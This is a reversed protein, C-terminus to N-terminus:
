ELSLSTIVKENNFTNTTSNYIEKYTYEIRVRKNILMAPNNEVKEAGQFNELWLLKEIKNEENKINIYTYEKTFVEKVYGVVINNAVVSATEETTEEIKSDIVPKMIEMYEPCNAALKLGIKYGLQQGGAKDFTKIGGEKLLGEIDKSCVKLFAEAFFSTADKETKISSKNKNDKMYKCIDESAKDIKPTQQAFLHTTVLLVILRIIIKSMALNYFKFTNNLKQQQKYETSIKLNFFFGV